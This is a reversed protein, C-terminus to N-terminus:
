PNTASASNNAGDAEDSAPPSESAPPSSGDGSPAEEGSAVRTGVIAEQLKANFRDLATVMEQLGDSLESYNVRPAEAGATSPEAGDAPRPAEELARASEVQETPPDTPDTPDTMPEPSRTPAQEMMALVQGSGAEGAPRPAERVRAENPEAATPAETPPSGGAGLLRLAVTPGLQSWPVKLAAVTAGSAIAAILVGGGLRVITERRSM